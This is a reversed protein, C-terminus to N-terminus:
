SSCTLWCPWLSSCYEGGAKGHGLSVQVIAADSSATLVTLMGSWQLRDEGKCLLRCTTVFCIFLYECRCAAFVDAAAFVMSQAACPATGHTVIQKTSKNKQWCVPPNAGFWVGSAALSYMGSSKSSREHFVGLAGAIACWGGGMLWFCCCYVWVAPLTGVRPLKIYSLTLTAPWVWSRVPVRDLVMGLVLFAHCESRASLVQALESSSIRRMDTLTVTLFCCVHVGILTCTRRLKTQLVLWSGHYGGILFPAPPSRFRM